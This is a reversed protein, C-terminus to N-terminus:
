RLCRQATNKGRYLLLPIASVSILGATIGFKRLFLFVQNKRQRMVITQVCQKEMFERLIRKLNGTYVKVVIDVRQKRLKQRSATVRQQHHYTVVPQSESDSRNPSLQEDGSTLLQKVVDELARSHHEVLFTISLGPEAIEEVYPLVDELDDGDRLVVLVHRKM